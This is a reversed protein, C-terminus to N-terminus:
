NYDVVIDLACLGRTRRLQQLFLFWRTSTSRKRIARMTEGILICYLTPLDTASIYLCTLVGDVVPAGVFSVASQIANNELLLFSPRPIYKHNYFSNM